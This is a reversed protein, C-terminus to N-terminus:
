SVHDELITLSENHMSVTTSSPPKKLVHQQLKRSSPIVLNKIALSKLPIRAGTNSNGLVIKTVMPSHKAQMEEHNEPECNEINSVNITDVLFVPDSNEVYSTEDDGSLIGSYQLCKESKKNSSNSHASANSRITNTTSVANGSITRPISNPYAALVNSANTLLHDNSTSFYFSAPVNDDVVRWPSSCDLSQKTSTPAITRIPTSQYNPKSLAMKYILSKQSSKSLRVPLPIPHTFKQVKEIQGTHESEDSESSIDLPEEKQEIMIPDIYDNDDSESSLEVTEIESKIKELSEILGEKLAQIGRNAVLKKTAEKYIQESVDKKEKPKKKRAQKKVVVIKNERKLKEFVDKMNNNQTPDDQSVQSNSNYDYVSGDNFEYAAQPANAIDTSKYIPQRHQLSASKCSTSPSSEDTNNSHEVDKQANEIPKKIAVSKYGLRKVSKKLAVIEKPKNSQKISQVFKTSAASVINVNKLPAAVKKIKNPKVPKQEAPPIKSRVTRKPRAEINNVPSEHTSQDENTPNPTEAANVKVAKAIGKVVKKTPQKQEDTSVNKQRVPQKSPNTRQPRGVARCESSAAKDETAVRMTKFQIQSVDKMILLKVCCPRIIIEEPALEAIAKGSKVAESTVSANNRRTSRKTAKLTAAVQEKPKVSEVELTKGRRLIKM